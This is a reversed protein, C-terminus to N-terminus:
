KGREVFKTKSKVAFNIIDIRQKVIAYGIDFHLSYLFNVHTTITLQCCDKFDNLIFQIFSKYSM